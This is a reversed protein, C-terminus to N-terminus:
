VGAIEEGNVVIRRRRIERPDPRTRRRRPAGTISGDVIVPSIVASDEVINSSGETRASRSGGESRSSPAPLRESWSSHGHGGGCQDSGAAIRAAAGAAPGADLQQAQADLLGGPCRRHQAERRDIQGVRGEDEPAA